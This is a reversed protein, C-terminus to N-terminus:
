SVSAYCTRMRVDLPYDGCSEMESLDYDGNDWARDAARLALVYPEPNERIREPVM